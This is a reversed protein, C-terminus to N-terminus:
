TEDFSRGDLRIDIGIADYLRKRLDAVSVEGRQWTGLEQDIWNFLRLCRRGGFGFVEHLGCGMLYYMSYVMNKTDEDIRAQEYEKRLQAMNQDSVRDVHAYLEAMSKHRNDREFKRKLKRLSGM